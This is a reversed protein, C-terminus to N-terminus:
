KAWINIIHRTTDVSVEHGAAEAFEKIPAYLHGQHEHIGKPKHGVVTVTRGNVKLSKRDAAIDAKVLLLRELQEVPAYYGGQEHMHPPVFRASWTVPRGGLCVAVGNKVPPCEGVASARGNAATTLLIAAAGIILLRKIM